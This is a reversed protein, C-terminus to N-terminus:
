AEYMDIDWPLNINHLELPLDPPTVGGRRMDRRMAGIHMLALKLLKRAVKVDEQSKELKSSLGTIENDHRILIEKMQELTLKRLEVDAMAMGPEATKKASYRTGLYTLIGGLGLGGLVTYAREFMSSM